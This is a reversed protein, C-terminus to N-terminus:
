GLLGIEDLAKKLQTANLKSFKLAIFARIRRELQLFVREFEAKVEEDTGTQKAPDSVGWHVKMPAGLFIPCSEGAAQDCVTVVLDVPTKVFEDWSKSRYGSTSIKKAKLTELSLPHVEGTPFSGASASCFKDKGYHALIAEAM